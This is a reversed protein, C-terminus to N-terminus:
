FCNKIVKRTCSIPLFFETTVCFLIGFQRCRPFLNINYNVHLQKLLWQPFATIFQLWSESSMLCTEGDLSPWWIIYFAIFTLLFIKQHLLECSPFFIGCPGAHSCPCPHQLLGNSSKSRVRPPVPINHHSLAKFNWKMHDLVSSLNTPYDQLHIYKWIYILLWNTRQHLHAYTWWRLLLPYVGTCHGPM